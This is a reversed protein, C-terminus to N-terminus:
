DLYHKLSDVFDPILTEPTLEESLKEDDNKDDCKAPKVTDGFDIGGLWVGASYYSTNNDTM